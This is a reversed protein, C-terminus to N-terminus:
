QLIFNAWAYHLTLICIFIVVAVAPLYKYIGKANIWDNRGWVVSAAPCAGPTFMAIHSAYIMCMFIALPNMGLISSVSLVIPLLLICMAVNNGFNTLITVLILVLALFIMNSPISTLPEQLLSIITVSIGTNQATIMNSLPLITATIFLVDWPLSNLSDKFNFVQQSKNLVFFFIVCLVMQIGPVNLTNLIKGSLTTTPLTCMLVVAIVFIALYILLCKKQPTMELASDSGSLAKELDLEKLPKLDIRLIFKIVLVFIVTLVLGFPLNILFYSGVDIVTGSAAEYASRLTVSTGSFPNSINGFLGFFGTGVGMVTAFKSYREYGVAECISFIISLFLIISTLASFIGLFFVALIIVYVTLLPRGKLFKRRMIWFAMYSDCGSKQFAGLFVFLFLSLAFTSTGFGAALVSALSQGEVFFMSVLACLCTWSIDAVSWGIICGIFIGLVHMGTPTLEWAPPIFRFLFIFFFVISYILYTKKNFTIAGM